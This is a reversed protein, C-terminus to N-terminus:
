YLFTRSTDLNDTGDSYGSFIANIVGMAIVIRVQFFSSSDYLFGICNTSFFWKGNASCLVAVM